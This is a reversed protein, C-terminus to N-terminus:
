PICKQVSHKYIQEVWGLFEDLTLNNKATNCIKCCPVCNDLVYGKANDVRDIGSFAFDGNGHKAKSISSPIRNCYHCNKRMMNVAEDRTLLFEINRRKASRKYEHFIRTEAECGVYKLNRRNNIKGKLCGCHKVAGLQSTSLILIEGCACACEWYAIWNHTSHKRVVTINGNRFGVKDTVVGSPM